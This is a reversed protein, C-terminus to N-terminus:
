FCWNPDPRSRVALTARRRSRAFRSPGLIRAPKFSDRDQKGGSNKTGKTEKQEMDLGIVHVRKEGFSVSERTFNNAGGDFHVPDHPWSQQLADVLPAQQALELVRWAQGARHLGAKFLLFRLCRLTFCFQCVSSAQCKNQPHYFLSRSRERQACRSRNRM